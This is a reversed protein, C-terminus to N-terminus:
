YNIIIPAVNSKVSAVILQAVRSALIQADIEIRNGGGTRCRKLVSCLLEHVAWVTSQSEGRVQSLAQEAIRDVVASEVNEQQM